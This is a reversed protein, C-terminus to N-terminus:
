NDLIYYIFVYKNFLYIYIQKNIISVQAIDM